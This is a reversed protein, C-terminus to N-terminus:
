MGIHDLRRRLESRSGRETWLLGEEGALARARAESPSIGFTEVFLRNFSSVNGFGAQTAIQGIRKNALRPSTIDRYARKLRAKRIYSAVGGVPAFLRYLSARSLGFARAVMGADLTGSALNADIFNRLSVFTALPEPTLRRDAGQLLLELSRGAMEVFGGALADLEAAKLSRSHEALAWLASALVGASGSQGSLALGHLSGIQSIPAQFRARPTWLIVLEVDSGRVLGLEFHQTWDVFLLGGSELSCKEAGIRWYADGSRLLIVAVHDLRENEDLVPFLRVARATMRALACSRALQIDLQGTFHACDEFLRAIEFVGALSRHWQAFEDDEIAARNSRSLLTTM